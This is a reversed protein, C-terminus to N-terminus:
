HPGHSVRACRAQGVVGSGGRNAAHDAAECSIARRQMEADVTAAKQKLAQLGLVRRDGSADRRNGVAANACLLLRSLIRRAVAATGGTSPSM